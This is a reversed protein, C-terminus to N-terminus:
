KFEELPRSSGLAIVFRDGDFEAIRGVLDDRAHFSKKIKSADPEREVAEPHEATAVVMRVPLDEEFAKSLHTNLLKNGLENGVWRSLSDVYLLRGKGGSKFYNAWGSIGIAGDNAIASVAWRPNDLKAGFKSFAEV